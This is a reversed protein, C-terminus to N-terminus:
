GPNPASDPQADDDPGADPAPPPGGAPGAPDDGGARPGDQDPGGPGRPGHGHWGKGGHPGMGDMMGMGGRPGMGDRPGRPGMPPRPELDVKALKDLQEPTLTAKLATIAKELTAAKAARDNIMAIMREQRAFAKEGDEGPAPPAPPAPPEFLALLASTYDRWTDIQNTRIGILTEAASLKEALRLQIEGRHARFFSGPGRQDGPGGPGPRMQAAPAPGKPPEAQAASLMTTGALAAIGLAALTRNM